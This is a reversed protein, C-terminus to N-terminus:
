IAVKAEQFDTIMGLYLGDSIPTEPCPDFKKQNQWNGSDFIIQIKKSTNKTNFIWDTNDNKKNILM